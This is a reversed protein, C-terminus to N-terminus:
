NKLMSPLLVVAAVGAALLVWNEKLWTIAQDNTNTTDTTDTNSNSNNSNGSSTSNINGPSTNLSNAGNTLNNPNVSSQSNGPPTIVNIQPAPHIPQVVPSSSVLGNPPANVFSVQGPGLSSCAPPIPATGTNYYGSNPAPWDPPLCAVNSAAIISTDRPPWPAPNFSGYQPTPVNPAPLGGPYVIQEPTSIQAGTGTGFLLGNDGIGMLSSKTRLSRTLM